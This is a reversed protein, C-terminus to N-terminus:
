GIKLESRVSKGIGHRRLCCGCREAWPLLSSSGGAAKKTPMPRVLNQVVTTPM